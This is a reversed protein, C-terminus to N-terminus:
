KVLCSFMATAPTASMTIRESSSLCCNWSGSSAAKRSPMEEAVQGSNPSKHGDPARSASRSALRGTRMPSRMKSIPQPRANDLRTPCRRPASMVALSQWGNAPAKKASFTRKFPKNGRLYRWPWHPRKGCSLSKSPGGGTDASANAAGSRAILPRKSSIMPLSM